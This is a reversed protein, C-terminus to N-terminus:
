IHFCKTGFFKKKPNKKGALCCHKHKRKKEPKRKVEIRNALKMTKNEKQKTSILKESIYIFVIRHIRKLWNTNTPTFFM